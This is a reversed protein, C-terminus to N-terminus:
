KAKLALQLITVLGLIDDSLDCNYSSDEAEEPDARITLIGNSAIEINCIPAEIFISKPFDELRWSEPLLRWVRSVLDVERHCEGKELWDLLQAINDVDAPRDNAWHCIETVTPKLDLDIVTRTSELKVILHRSTETCRAIVKNKIKETKRGRTSKNM